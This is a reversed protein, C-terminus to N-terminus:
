WLWRARLIMSRTLNHLQTGTERCKKPETPLKRWLHSRERKVDRWYFNVLALQNQIGHQAYHHYTSIVSAVVLPARFDASSSISESDKNLSSHLLFSLSM